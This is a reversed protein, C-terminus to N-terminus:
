HPNTVLRQVAATAVRGIDLTLVEFAGVIGWKVARSPTLAGHATANRLAKALRLEDEWTTIDDGTILWREIIAADGRELGLFEIIPNSAGNGPRNLWDELERRGRRVKPSNVSPPAARLVFSRFEAPGLGRGTFCLLTKILTELGGYAMVLRWQDGRARDAKTQKNGGIHPENWATAAAVLAEGRALSGLVAKIYGPDDPHASSFRALYPHLDTLDDKSKVLGLWGKWAASLERRVAIM